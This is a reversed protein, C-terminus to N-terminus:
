CGVVVVVLFAVSMWHDGFMVLMYKQFTVWTHAGDAVEPKLGYYAGGM